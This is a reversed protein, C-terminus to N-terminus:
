PLLDDVRVHQSLAALPAIAARRQHRSVSAYRWGFRAAADAVPDRHQHVLMESLDVVWYDRIGSAAYLSAKVNLDYSLTTDAVEVVLLASTPHGTGIYDREGGQVVAVDPEPESDNLLHLPDQTRVWYGDGFARAIAKAALSLCAVHLDKKPPMEVVEGDILEVRQESFWGLEGMRYYEPVTWRRPRPQTPSPALLTM